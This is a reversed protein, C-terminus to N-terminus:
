ILTSIDQELYLDISQAAGFRFISFRRLRMINYHESTITVHIERLNGWSSELPIYKVSPEIACPDLSLVVKKELYDGEDNQLKAELPNRDLFTFEKQEDIHICYHGGCLYVKM